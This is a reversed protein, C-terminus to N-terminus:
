NSLYEVTDPGAVAQHLEGPAHFSCAVASIRFAQEALLAQLFSVRQKTDERSRTCGKANPAILSQLGTYGPHDSITFRRLALAYPQTGSLQIRRRTRNEGSKSKPFRLASFGRAASMGPLFSGVRGRILGTL